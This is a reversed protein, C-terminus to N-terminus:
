LVVEYRQRLHEIVVGVVDFKQKRPPPVMGPANDAEEGQIIAYDKGYWDLSLNDRYTKVNGLKIKDPM